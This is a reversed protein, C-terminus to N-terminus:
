TPSIYVYYAGLSLGDPGEFWTQLEYPYAFLEVKFTIGASGPQVDDFINLQGIKIRARTIELAKGEPMDQGGPVAKKLPLGETIPHDIEKPWRRLEINYIGPDTVQITWFGNKLPGQRIHTQNWPASTKKGESDVTEHWDHAYLVVGNQDVIARTYENLTPEIQNWWKNYGNTLLNVMSKESSSIDNIQSPDKTLDYLETQNVLRWYDVMASSRKWKVVNEDRQTDTILIRTRWSHLDEESGDLLNTLDRGDLDQLASTDLSCNKILTPLLDIHATLVELDAGTKFNSQPWKIFCPVRHGGEYESVKTGRMGANYGSKLRGDSGFSAGRATGNDTMFIVITNEEIGLDAISTMLRGINDDINTIMGYFNPNVGQIGLYPKIYSSDVHFPGHPANTALYTFFPKNRKRSIFEIAKDFWVDTCYGTTKEVGNNTFYTDDFYDNDWFDPGQWVGGGGHYFVDQFGRDQPRFPYSDGLHWKGIMATEYGSESFIDGMTKHGLALQSRGGITHWVGVRNCHKGTMLAARTPSCTTGVHFDTLRISQAYLRDLNPTRIHINGHCGLDGYGQDDTMILIVNPREDVVESTLDGSSKSPNCSVFVLSIIIVLLSLLRM